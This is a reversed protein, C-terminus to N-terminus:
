FYLFSVLSVDFKGVVAAVIKKMQLVAINQGLCVRRGRSFGLHAAEMERLKEGSAGIWREPRFVAADSGFAASNLHIAQPMCGVTTGTPFFAGCITAGPSPVVRELPFTILTFLRMSERIVASLYPLHQVQAYSPTESLYAHDLENQLTTLCAPNRLLYYIIATMTTATTDGAGAITSSLMGIIGAPSLAEPHEHSAQMFNHLLDLKQESKELPSSSTRAQIQRVAVAVLGLAPRSQRMAIPNRFILRELGPISSWWGWHYFHNRIMQILGGVDSRSKLFGLSESFSVRMATDITAFTLTQCINVVQQESLAQILEPIAEDIVPEYDLVSTPTFAKAM